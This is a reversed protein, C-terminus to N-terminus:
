WKFGVWLDCQSHVDSFIHKWKLIGRYNGWKWFHNLLYTNLTTFFYIRKGHDLTSFQASWELGLCLMILLGDLVMVLHCEWLSNEPYPSQWPEWTYSGNSEVSLVAIREKFISQLFFFYFLVTTLCYMKGNLKISGSANGTDFDTVFIQKESM